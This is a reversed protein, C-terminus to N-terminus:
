EIGFIKKINKIEEKNDKMKKNFNEMMEDMEKRIEEIRKQPTPNKSNWKRVVSDKFNIECCDVTIYNNCECKAGGVIWNTMEKKSIKIKESGCKICPRIKFEKYFGLM